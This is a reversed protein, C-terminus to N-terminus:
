RAGYRGRRQRHRQTERAGAGGQRQEHGPGKGPAQGGKGGGAAKGRKGEMGLGTGVGKAGRGARDDDGVRRGGHGGIGEHGAGVVRRQLQLLTIDMPTRKFSPACVPRPRGKPFAAKPALSGKPLYSKPLSVHIQGPRTHAHYKAGERSETAAAAAGQQEGPSASQARTPGTGCAPLTAPAAAHAAQAATATGHPRDPPADPAVDAALAAPATAQAAPVAEGAPM